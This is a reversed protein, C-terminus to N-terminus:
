PDIQPFHFRISEDEEFVTIRDKLWETVALASGDDSIAMSFPNSRVSLLLRASEQGNMVDYLIVNNDGSHVVAIHEGWLAVDNPVQGLPSIFTDVRPECREHWANLNVRKLIGSLALIYYLEDNHVLPASAGEMQDSDGLEITCPNLVGDKSILYGQDSNFDVVVFQDAWAVVAGLALRREPELPIVKMTPAVGDAPQEFLWVRNHLASTVLGTSGNWALQTPAGRITDGGLSPFSWTTNPSVGANLTERNFVDITGEDLATPTDFHSLDIRGTNVVYIHDDYLSIHAPNYQSTPIRNIENGNDRHVLTIFGPKWGTPDYGSSGIVILENFFLIDQPRKLISSGEALMERSPVQSTNLCGGLWVSLSMCVLISGRVLNM